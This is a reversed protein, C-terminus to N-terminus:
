YFVLRSSWNKIFDYCSRIKREEKNTLRAHLGWGYQACICMDCEDNVKNKCCNFLLAIGFENFCINVIM